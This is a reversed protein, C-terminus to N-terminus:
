QTKLFLASIASLISGIVSLRIFNSIAIGTATVGARMIEFSEHDQQQAAAQAIRVRVMEDLFQPYFFSISIMNYVAYVLGTAVSIVVGVILAQRYNIEGNLFRTTYLRTGVVICLVLVLVSVLMSWPAFYVGAMYMIVGAVAQVVGATLGLIILVRLNGRGSVKAMAQKHGGALEHM